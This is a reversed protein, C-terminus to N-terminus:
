ESSRPRARARDSTTRSHRSMWTTVPANRDVLLFSKVRLMEEVTPVRVKRGKAIAVDVTELPASRRQNRLGAAVGDVQGLTM